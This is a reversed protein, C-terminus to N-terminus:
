EFSTLYNGSENVYNITQQNLVLQILSLIASQCTLKGQMRVCALMRWKKLLVTHDIVDFASTLDTM